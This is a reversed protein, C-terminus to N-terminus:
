ALAGNWVDTVTGFSNVATVTQRILNGSSGAATWTYGSNTTGTVPTWTAGADTSIELLTTITLGGGSWLGPRFTYSVGITLNTANATNGVRDDAALIGDLGMYAPVAYADRDVLRAIPAMIYLRINVTGAAVRVGFYVETTSTVRGATLFMGPQTRAVRPGIQATEAGGLNADTSTVTGLSLKGRSTGGMASGFQLLGVPAASEDSASSLRYGNLREGFDGILNPWVIRSGVVNQRTFAITGEASATGTIDIIQAPYGLLTGVSCAVACTTSNTVTSGDVVNGTPLTSGSKTGGTGSFVHRPDVDDGHGAQATVIALAQTPTQADVLTDIFAALVSGMFAAGSANPHIRDNGEAYCMTLPDFLVPDTSRYGFSLALTKGDDTGDLAMIWDNVAVLTANDAPYLGGGIRASPLVTTWIIVKSGLGARLTAHLSTLAAIVTASGSGMNNHGIGVITMDAQQSITYSIRAALQAITNGGIAQDGAVALRVRGALRDVTQLQVSRMGPASGVAFKSDGAFVLRAGLPMLAPAPAGGKYAAVAASPISLGVGIM